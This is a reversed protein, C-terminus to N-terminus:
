MADFIDDAGELVITTFKTSDIIATVFDGRTKLLKNKIFDTMEPLGKRDSLVMCDDCVAKTEKSGGDTTLLLGRFEM